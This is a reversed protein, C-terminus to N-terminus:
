LADIIDKVKAALSAIANTLSAIAAEDANQNAACQALANKIAVLDAQAYSAGAAIASFTTSPTGGTADTITAPATVVAITGSPTGGSNDILASPPTITALQGSPSVTGGIAISTATASDGPYNLFELVAGSTSPFSVAQFHGINTGDAIVYVQGIAMFQSSAVLGTVNANAAPIVLAATLITFANLGPTGVGNAGAPGPIQVVIENGCNPCCSMQHSM